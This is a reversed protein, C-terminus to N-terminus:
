KNTADLGKDPSMNLTSNMIVGEQVILIPTSINGEVRAPARLDVKGSAKINGKFTGSLVLSGVNIEAEVKAGDGVILTDKSVIEGKFEGDLRVIEHFLLKGEFQSGPGLFAKIDGKEIQNDKRM